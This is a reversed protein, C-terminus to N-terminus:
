AYAREAIEGDLFKELAAVDLGLASNTWCAVHELLLGILHGIAHHRAATTGAVTAHSAAGASLIPRADQM